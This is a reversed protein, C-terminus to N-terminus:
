SVSWDQEFRKAFASAAQADDSVLDLEHNVSLGGQSWNASGLLLRRGDFLVAKAHLKTGPPVPYWRAEVGAAHLLIM